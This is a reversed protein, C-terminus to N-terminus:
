DNLRWAAAIAELRREVKITHIAIIDEVDFGVANGWWEIDSIKFLAKLYKKHDIVPVLVKGTGKCYGCGSEDGTKFDIGTGDCEPCEIEKELSLLENTFSLDITIGLHRDSSDKDFLGYHLGGGELRRWYYQDGKYGKAEALLQLCTDTPNM